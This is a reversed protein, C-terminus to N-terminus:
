DLTNCATDYFACLQSAASRESEYGDGCKNPMNTACVTEVCADRATNDACDSKISSIKKDRATQYASVIKALVTATNNIAEDRASLLTERIESVYDDCGTANVSCTAFFKDFDADEACKRYDATCYKDAVLCATIDSKCSSKTKKKAVTDLTKDLKAAVGAATCSQEILKDYTDSVDDTTCGAVKKICQATAWAYREGPDTPAKKLEKDTLNYKASAGVSVARMGKKESPPLGASSTGCYQCRASPNSSINIACASDLCRTLNARSCKAAANANACMLLASLLFLIQTKM